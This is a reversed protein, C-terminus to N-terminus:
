KLNTTIQNPKKKKQILLWPIYTLSTLIYPFTHVNRLAKAMELFLIYWAKKIQNWGFLGNTEECDTRENVTLHM